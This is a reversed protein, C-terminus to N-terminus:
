KHYLEGSASIQKNLFLQNAVTALPTDERAQPEPRLPGAAEKSVEPKSM